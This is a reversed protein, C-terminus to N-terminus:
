PKQSEKAAKEEMRRRRVRELHQNTPEISEERRKKYAARLGGRESGVQDGYALNELLDIVDDSKARILNVAAPMTHTKRAWEHVAHILRDIALM